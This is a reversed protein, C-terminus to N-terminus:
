YISLMRPFNFAFVVWCDSTIGVPRLEAYSWCGTVAVVEISAGFVVSFVAAVITSGGVVVVVVVVVVMSAGAFSTFAGSFLNM